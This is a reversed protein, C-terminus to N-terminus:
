ELHDKADGRGGAGWVWGWRTGVGVGVGEVVGVGPRAQGPRAQGPRAQGPRALARCFFAFTAQFILGFMPDRALAQLFIPIRGHDNALAQLSM